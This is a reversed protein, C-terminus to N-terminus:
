AGRCHFENGSGHIPSIKGPVDLGATNEGTSDRASFAAARHFPLIRVVGEATEGAAGGKSEWGM